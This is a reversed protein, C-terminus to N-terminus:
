TTRRATGLVCIRESFLIITNSLVLNSLHFTLQNITTWARKRTINHGTSCTRGKPRTHHHAIFRCRLVRSPYERLIQQSKPQGSERLCSFLLSNLDNFKITTTITKTLWLLWSVTIILMYSVVDYILTNTQPITTFHKANM